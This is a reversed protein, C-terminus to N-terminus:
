HWNKSWAPSTGAIPSVPVQIRGLVDTVYIRSTGDRTSSFAIMRGDPSWAPSTNSGRDTLVRLDTGDTRITCIQFRSEIRVTFAILGGTPSWDPDTNYNTEFTLRRPPGGNVPAIYIQPTGAQDSVYAIASQDPSWTPSIDNGRGSTLGKIINGQPSIIFIHPIGKFSMSLAIMGGDPSYRPSANMGKRTSVPRVQMSALDLSWVDPKGKFYSTFLLSRNDPSWEPSLNISRNSTMEKMNHGDFDMSYIERARGTQVFAIKSSFCGPVGTLAEMIRDAFLHIIRRLDRVDGSLRKGVELKKLAVDYLRAEVTLTDGSVQFSGIVIAQAGTQGWAEFDPEGGTAPPVPTAPDVISFLGTFALDNRLIGALEGGNVAGPQQSVFAPIAVPVSLNPNEIDLRIRARAPDATAGLFVALVLLWFLSRTKGSSRVWTVKPNVQPMIMRRAAACLYHGRTKRLDGDIPRMHRLRATPNPESM